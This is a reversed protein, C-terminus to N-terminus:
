GVGHHVTQLRRMHLFSSSVKDKNFQFENSFWTSDTERGSQSLKLAAVFQRFVTSKTGM